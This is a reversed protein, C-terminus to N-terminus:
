LTSNSKIEQYVRTKAICMYQLTFAVIDESRLTHMQIYTQREM